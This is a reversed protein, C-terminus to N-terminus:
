ASRRSLMRAGALLAVPFYNTLIMIRYDLFFNIGHVSDALSSCQGLSGSILLTLAFKQPYLTDRSLHLPDRCFYERSEIGSGSSKRELLREITRVLNLSGRELGVLERCIQYHRFDFGLGRSIYGPVRVVLCCLRDPLGSRWPFTDPTSHFWFTVFIDELSHGLCSLQYYRPFLYVQGMDTIMLGYAFLHHLWSYLMQSESIHRDVSLSIMCQIVLQHAQGIMLSFIQGVSQNM